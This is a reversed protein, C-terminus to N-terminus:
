KSAGEAPLVAVAELQLEMGHQLDYVLIHRAPRSEADPFCTLWHENVHGRSSSDKIYVTLRVVDDLSGGANALVSRLNQFAHQAQAAAGPAIKTTAPDIGAIGSTYLVNDVRAGMPIPTNGHSVGDLHISRRRHTQHATM